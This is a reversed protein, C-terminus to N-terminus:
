CIKLTPKPFCFILKSDPSSWFSVSNETSHSFSPQRAPGPARLCALVVHPGVRLDAPPCKSDSARIGLGTQGLGAKVQGGAQNLKLCM